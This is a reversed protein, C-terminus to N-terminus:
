LHSFETYRFFAFVQFARNYERIVDSTLYYLTLLGVFLLSFIQVIM